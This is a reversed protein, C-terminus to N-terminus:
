VSISALRAPIWPAITFSLPSLKPTLMTWRYNGQVIEPPRVGSTVPAFVAYRSKRGTSWTTLACTQVESCRETPSVSAFLWAVCVSIAGFARSCGCNPHCQLWRHFSAWLGAPCGFAYGCWAVVGMQPLVAVCDCLCCHLAWCSPSGARASVHHSGARQAHPSHPVAACSTALGLCRASSRCICSSHSITQDHASVSNRGRILPPLLITGSHSTTTM